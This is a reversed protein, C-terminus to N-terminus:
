KGMKRSIAQMIFPALSALGITGTFKFNEDKMYILLYGSTEIVEDPSNGKEITIKNEM